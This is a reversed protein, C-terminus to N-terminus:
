GEDPPAAKQNSWSLSSFTGVFCFAPMLGAKLSNIIGPTEPGTIRRGQSHYRGAFFHYGSRDIYPDSRKRQIRVRGPAMRHDPDSGSYVFHKEYVKKELVRLFRNGGGPILIKYVKSWM